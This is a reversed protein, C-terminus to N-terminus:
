NPQLKQDVAALFRTALDLVDRAQQVTAMKNRPTRSRRPQDFDIDMEHAIQNRARFVMDYVDPKPKAMLQDAQLGFHSAASLVQQKSQLSQSTLKAVLEEVLRTRPNGGSLAESLLESRKDGELEKRVFDRFERKAEDVRDIVAPLADRILHKIMSDLGACAFVLMARMLDYDQDSPAGRGRASLREEFTDLFSQATSRAHKLVLYAKSLEEAQPENPEPGLSM